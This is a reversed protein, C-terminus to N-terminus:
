EEGDDGARDREVGRGAPAGKDRDRRKLGLGRVLTRAATAAAGHFEEILGLNIELAAVAAGADDREPALFEDLEATRVAAIAAAAAIQHDLRDGIEVGKDVVAVPLMEAGRVAM